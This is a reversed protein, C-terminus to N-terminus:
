GNAYPLNEVYFIETAVDIRMPPPSEAARYEATYRRTAQQHQDAINQMRMAQPLFRQELYREVCTENRGQHELWSFRNLDKYARFYGLLIRVRVGRYASDILAQHSTM